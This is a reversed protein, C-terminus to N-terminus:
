NANGSHVPKGNGNESVRGAVNGNSGRVSEALDRRLQDYDIAHTVTTKTEMPAGNKGTHEHRDKRGFENGYMRELMWAAAQWSSATSVRQVLRMKGSKKAKKIGRAFEPNERMHRRLTSQDVEIIDAADQISGGNGVIGLVIKQQDPGIKPKPGPKNRKQM